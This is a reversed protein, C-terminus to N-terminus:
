GVRQSLATNADRAEQDVFEYTNGGYNIKDIQQEM